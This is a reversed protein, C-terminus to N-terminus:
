LVGSYCLAHICYLFVRQLMSSLDLISFGATSGKFIYTSQTFFHRFSRTVMQRYGTLRFTVNECRIWNKLGPLSKQSWLNQVIRCKKAGKQVKQLTYPDPTKARIRSSKWLKKIPPIRCVAANQVLTYVTVVTIYLIYAWTYTPFLTWAATYHVTFGCYNIPFM